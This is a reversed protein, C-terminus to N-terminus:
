KKRAKGTYHRATTRKISAHVAVLAKDRGVEIRHNLLKCGEDGNNTIVMGAGKRTTDM